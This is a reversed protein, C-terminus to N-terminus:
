WQEDLRKKILERSLLVKNKQRDLEKKILERNLAMTNKTENISDMVLQLEKAYDRDEILYIVTTEIWNGYFSGNDYYETVNRRKIDKIKHKTESLWKNIDDNDELGNFIKIQTIM